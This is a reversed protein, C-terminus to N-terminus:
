IMYKRKFGHPPKEEVKPWGRGRREKDYKNRCKKCMWSYQDNGARAFEEVPKVFFCKNCQKEVLPDM